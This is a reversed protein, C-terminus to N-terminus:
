RVRSAELEKPTVFPWRKGSARAWLGGFDPVCLALLGGPRLWGHFRRLAAVPDVVHELADFCTVVDFPAGRPEAAEVPAATVEAGTKARARAAVEAVPEIGAVSFGAAQAELLFAGSACGM